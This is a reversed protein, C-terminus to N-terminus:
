LLFVIVIIISIIKIEYFICYYFLLLLGGEGGGEGWEWYARANQSLGYVSRRPKPVSVADTWSRSAIDLRRMDM